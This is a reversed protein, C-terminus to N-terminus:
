KYPFACNDPLYSEYNLRLLFKNFNFGGRMFDLLFQIGYENDTQTGLVSFFKKKQKVM